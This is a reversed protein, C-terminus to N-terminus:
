KKQYDYIPKILKKLTHKKEEYNKHEEKHASSCFEAVMQEFEPALKQESEM